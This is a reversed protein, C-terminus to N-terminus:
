EHMCKCANNVGVHYDVFEITHLNQNGAWSINVEEATALIVTSPLGKWTPGERAYRIQDPPEM